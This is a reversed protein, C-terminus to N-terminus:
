ADSATAEAEDLEPADEATAMTSGLPVLTRRLQLGAPGAYFGASVFEPALFHETASQGDITVLLTGRRNGPTRALRQGREALFEALDRAAHTREPENEPLFVQLDSGDGRLYALLEGNRLIVRAGTSRLL